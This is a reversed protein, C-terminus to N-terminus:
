NLRNDVSHSVANETQPPHPLCFPCPGYFFYHNRHQPCRNLDDYAHLEAQLQKGLETQGQARAAWLRTKIEQYRQQCEEITRAVTQIQPLPGTQEPPQNGRKEGEQNEVIKVDQLPSVDTVGKVTVPSLGGVSETVRETVPDYQIDKYDTTRVTSTQWWTLSPSLSASLSVDTRLQHCPDVLRQVYFRAILVPYNGRKGKNMWRKIFGIEELHNLSRQIARLGAPTDLDRPTLKQIKRASCRALGTKHEATLCLLDHIALDLAGITGNELHELIGRRRPYWGGPLRPEKTERKSKRKSDPVNAM